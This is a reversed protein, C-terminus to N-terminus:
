VDGLAADMDRKLDDGWAEPPGPAAFGCVDDIYIRARRIIDLLEQESV